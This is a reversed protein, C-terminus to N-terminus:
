LHMAAETAKTAETTKTAETAKAAEVPKKETKVAQKMQEAPKGQVPASVATAGSIEKLWALFKPIFRSQVEAM